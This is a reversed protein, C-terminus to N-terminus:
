ASSAEVYRQGGSPHRGGGHQRVGRRWAESCVRGGAVKVVPESTMSVTTVGAMSPLAKRQTNFSKAFSHWLTHKEKQGEENEALFLCKECLLLYSSCPKMSFYQPVIVVPDSPSSDGGSTVAM